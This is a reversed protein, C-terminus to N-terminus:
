KETTAKVVKPSKCETNEQMEFLVFVYCIAFLRFDEM